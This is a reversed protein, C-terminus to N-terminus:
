CFTNWPRVSFFVHMSSVGGSREYEDDICKPMPTPMFLRKGGKKSEDVQPLGTWPKEGPPLVTASVSFRASVRGGLGGM